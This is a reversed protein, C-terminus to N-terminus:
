WYIAVVEVDLLSVDDESIHAATPVSASPAGHEPAPLYALDSLSRARNRFELDKEAGIRFRGFRRVKKGVMDFANRQGQPSAMLPAAGLIEAEIELDQDPTLAKGSHALLLQRYTRLARTLANELQLHSQPVPKASLAYTGALNIQHLLDPAVDRFLDALKVPTWTQQLGDRSVRCLITFEAESFLVRRIDKWYALHETVGVITLPRVPLDADRVADKHVVFDEGDLNVVVRDVAEARIPILGALLRTLIKNMPEANELAGSWGDPSYKNPFDEAISMFESLMTGMHFVPDAALRVKLEILKGRLLNSAPTAMSPDQSRRISAADMAAVDTVVSILRLNAKGHLERFWSQVTAKRSTQFTSSNATQFRSALEAKGILANEIGAVTSTEVEYGDISQHSTGETMGDAQSSLLSRLSVEDLYVFERLPGGSNPKRPAPKPAKRFWRKVWGVISM